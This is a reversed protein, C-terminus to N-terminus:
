EDVEEIEVKPQLAYTDITEWAAIEPNEGDDVDVSINYTM